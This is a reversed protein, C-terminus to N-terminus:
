VNARSIVMDLLLNLNMDSSYGQFQEKKGYNSWSYADQCQYNALVGGYTIIIADNSTIGYKKDVYDISLDNAIDLYNYTCDSDVKISDPLFLSKLQHIIEKQYMKPHSMELLPLKEEEDKLTLLYPQKSTRNASFAVVLTYLKM